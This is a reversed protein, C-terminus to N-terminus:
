MRSALGSPASAFTVIVNRFSSQVLDGLGVVHRGARTEVHGDRFLHRFQRIFAEARQNSGILRDEDLARHVQIPPTVQAAPVKAVAVRSGYGRPRALASIM